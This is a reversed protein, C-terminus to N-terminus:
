WPRTAAPPERPHPAHCTTRNTATPKSPSSIHACSGNSYQSTNAHSFTNRTKPESPNPLNPFQHNAKIRSTMIESAHILMNQTCVYFCCKRHMRTMIWSAISAVFISRHTEASENVGLSRADTSSGPTTLARFRLVCQGHPYKRGSM